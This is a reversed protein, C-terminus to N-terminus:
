APAHRVAPLSHDVRGELAVGARAVLLRDAGAPALGDGMPLHELAVVPNVATAHRAKKGAPQLGAAGMLDPHVQSMDAMREQAVADVSRTKAGLGGMQRGACLVCQSVKLPLGEM